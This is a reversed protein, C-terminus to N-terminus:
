QAARVCVCQPCYWTTLFAFGVLATVPKWGQEQAWQFAQQSTTQAPAVQVCGDCAVQFERRTVTQIM